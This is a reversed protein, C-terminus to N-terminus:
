PSPLSAIQAELYKLLDDREPRPKTILDYLVSYTVHYPILEGKRVADIDTRRWQSEIIKMQNKCYEAVSGTTVEGESLIKNWSDFKLKEDDTLESLEKIGHKELYDALLSHM